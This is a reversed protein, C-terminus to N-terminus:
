MDAGDLSQESGQKLTLSRRALGPRKWLRIGGCHDATIIYQDTFVVDSMPEYHVRRVCVCVCVRVCARRITPM